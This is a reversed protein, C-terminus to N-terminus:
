FMFSSNAHRRVLQFASRLTFRGSQSPRWVMLDPLRGVPPAVRAVKSIIGAPVWQRILQLNWSGDTVFDAVLHDSVSDLRSALAGNGLWNDFWFNSRGSRGIWGIHQKALHRVAM